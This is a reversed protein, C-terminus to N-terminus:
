FQMIEVRSIKIKKTINELCYKDLVTDNNLLFVHKYVNNSIVYDNLINNNAKTFGLNVINFVLKIKPHTSYKKELDIMENPESGNDVM